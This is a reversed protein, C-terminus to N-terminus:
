ERDTIIGARVLNAARAYRQRIASASERLEPRYGTFGDADAYQRPPVIRLAPDRRARRAFRRLVGHAAGVLLGVGVVAAVFLFDSAATM